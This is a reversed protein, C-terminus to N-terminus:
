RPDSPWAIGRHSEEGAAAVMLLRSVFGWYRVQEHCRALPLEFGLRSLRREEELLAALTDRAQDLRAATGAPMPRERLARALDSM